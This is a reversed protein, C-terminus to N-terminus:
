FSHIDSLIIVLCLSSEGIIHALADTIVAYKAITEVESATLCHELRGVEHTADSYCRHAEDAARILELFEWRDDSCSWSSSSSSSGATPSTM